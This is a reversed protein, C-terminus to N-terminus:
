SYQKIFDLNDKKINEVWEDLDIRHWEEPEKFYVRENVESKKWPNFHSIPRYYWMCRTRVEVPTRTIEEWDKNYFKKNMTM